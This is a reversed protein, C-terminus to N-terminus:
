ASGRGERVMEIHWIGDELAPESAQVFGFDGYFRQLYQQAWIRISVPGFQEQALACAKSFLEKGLGTGRLAKSVVVRGISAEQYIVGPPLVRAYALLSAGDGTNSQALGLLHLAAFDRGDADLYWCEQEVVFIAQRLAMIEYLEYPTLTEFQKVTWQMYCKEFNNNCQRMKYVPM